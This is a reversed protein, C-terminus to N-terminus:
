KADNTNEAATPPHRAKTQVKTKPPDTTWSPAWCAMYTGEISIPVERYESMEMDMEKEKFNGNKTFNLLMLRTDFETCTNGSYKKCTEDQHKYAEFAGDVDNIKGLAEEVQVRSMGEFICHAAIAANVKADWKSKPMKTSAEDANTDESSDASDASPSSVPPRHSIGYVIASVIGIGLSIILLSVVTKGTTSFVQKFAPV